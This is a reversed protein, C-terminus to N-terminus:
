TRELLGLFEGAENHERMCVNLGIGTIIKADAAVPLREPFKENSM